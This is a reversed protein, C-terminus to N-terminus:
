DDKQSYVINIHYKDEMHSHRLIYLIPNRHEEFMFISRIIIIDTHKPSSLRKQNDKLNICNSSGM